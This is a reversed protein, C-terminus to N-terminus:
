ADLAAMLWDGYFQAHIAGRNQGPRLVIKEILARIAETTAARDGNLNPTETPRQVKKAYIPAAAQRCTPSKPHPTRL